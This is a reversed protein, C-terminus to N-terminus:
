RFVTLQGYDLYVQTRNHLRYLSAKGRKRPNSVNGDVDFHTVTM